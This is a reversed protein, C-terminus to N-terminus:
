RGNAAVAKQVEAKAKNTSAIEKQSTQQSKEVKEIDPRWSDVFQPKDLSDKFDQLTDNWYESNEKIGADLMKEKLLQQYDQNNQPPPTTKSKKRKRNQRREQERKIRTDEKLIKEINKFFKEKELFKQPIGDKAQWKKIEIIQNIKLIIATYTEIEKSSYTKINELFREKSIDSKKLRRSKDEQRNRVMFYRAIHQLSLNIIQQIRAKLEQEDWSCDTGLLAILINLLDDPCLTSFAGEFNELFALAFRRRAADFEEQGALQVTYQSCGKKKLEQEKKMKLIFATELEENVDYLM